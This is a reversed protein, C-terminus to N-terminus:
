ADSTTDGHDGDPEFPLRITVTTGEGRRSAVSLEGGHLDVIKKAQALGLGTGNKKDTVFAGFLKAQMAEAIGRGNDRITLEVWEEGTDETGSETEVSIKASGAEVANTIISVITQELLLADVAVKPLPKISTQSIEVRSDPQSQGALAIAQRTIQCLDSPEKQLELPKAFNLFRKIWLSLRDVSGIIGELSERGEPDNQAMNKMTVQAAARIGALPNQINHATYAAVEGLTSLRERTALQQHFKKLSRAMENISRGLRGWEDSGALDVRSDFDGTSISETVTTISEIPRVLWRRILIFLVVLQVAAAVLAGGIVWAAYRGSREAAAVSLDVQTRYYQLLVAVDEAVENGIERLRLRTKSRSPASDSDESQSIIGELVWALEYQTEAFGEIHDIELATTAGERLEALNSVIKQQEASFREMSEPELDLFDLGSEVLGTMDSQLREAKLGQRRMVALDDAAQNWRKLTWVSASGVVVLVLLMIFYSILLRARITM